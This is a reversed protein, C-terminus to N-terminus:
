EPKQLVYLYQYEYEARIMDVKQLEIFGVKRAISLITPIDSMHLEHKNKRFLKGEKRTTFKEVFVANDSNEDVEFNSGYKFEDFVINSHTIRNKSYRQPSVVLLPNAPPLIPDFMSKDVVHITLKGGPMLWNFCNSLFAQKNKFYYITFYLCTIHTFQSNKFLSPKMVDGLVYKNKPNIEKAKKVMPESNDVGTVDGVGADTLQKVHHGTGSGIDLIISKKTPETYKVIKQIEFENKSHTYTLSDYVNAYFDDYINKGQKLEFKEETTFAEIRSSKSNIHRFLVLFLIIVIVAKAWVTLNNISSYGKKITKGLNDM